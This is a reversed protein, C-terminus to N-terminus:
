SLQARGRRGARARPGHCVRDRTGLRGRLRHARDGRRRRAPEGARAALGAPVLAERRLRRLHAAADERAGRPARRRRAARRREAPTASERGRAPLVAGLAIAVRESAPALADLERLQDRVFGDRELLDMPPYGTLVMEPLVVLDARESAAKAAAEEVLRRNGRLDGITPNVQALAVRMRGLM